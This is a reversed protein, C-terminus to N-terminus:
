PEGRQLKLRRVAAAFEERALRLRSYATNLPIELARAVEPIPLEDIDVMIFVARRQEEVSQLAAIVMRKADGLAVQAEPSPGVDVADPEAHVRERINRALRRYDSAVRVAIGFLWPRLPRGRDFDALKRHVVVFVDHTLDELDREAIGLRRLSHWVYGHHAEFAARFFDAPQAPLAAADAPAGTLAHM